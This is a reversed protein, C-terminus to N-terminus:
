RDMSMLFSEIEERTTPLPIDLLSELKDTSIEFRVERAGDVIESKSGIREYVDSIRAVGKAGLNVVEGTVGKEVLSWMVRVANDTSIFQLESAPDLWVQADNLMDFIANKKLGRGVFGGMRFVLAELRAGRVLTEALYKHLGYRSMKTPDLVQDERTVEPSTQVPYVDGTSLHVYKGIEFDSLTRAVSTVSAEFEWFPERDAMFKKSNGNANVFYDCSQGIFQDYNQRTIVAHALGRKAFLRAFASGVFGEGGLLFIM